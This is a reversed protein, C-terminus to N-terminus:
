KNKHLGDNITKIFNFKPKHLLAFNTLIFELAFLPAHNIIFKKLMRSYAVKYNMASYREYAMVMVEERVFNEKQEFTLDHFKSEDLEVDKGEALVLTYVPILNLIKHTEDHEETDYNVSNSFFDDKSMKLDSRKNKSHYSNWFKYLELFLPMHITNGKGLLFQLDFMHKPWNIDWCLHSAKLTCLAMSPLVDFGGYGARYLVPNYLYEVGKKYPRKEKTAVAYDTDKPERKFDPYHYKIAKSGILIKM